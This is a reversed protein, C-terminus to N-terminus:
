EQLLHYRYIISEFNNVLITNSNYICNMLSVIKSQFNLIDNTQNEADLLFNLMNIEAELLKNLAVERQLMSEVWGTLLETNYDM